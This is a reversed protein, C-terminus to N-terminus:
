ADDREPLENVAELWRDTIVDDIWGNDYTACEELVAEVTWPEARGNRTCYRGTVEQLHDTVADAVSYTLKNFLYVFRLMQQAVAVNEDACDEWDMGRPVIALDHPEIAEAMAKRIAPLHAAIARRADRVWAPRKRANTM